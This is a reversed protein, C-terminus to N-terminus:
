HVTMPPFSDLDENERLAKIWATKVAKLPSHAPSSEFWHLRLGASKCDARKRYFLKVNVLKKSFCSFM